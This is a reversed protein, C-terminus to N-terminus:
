IQKNIIIVCNTLFLILIYVVYDNNNILSLIYKYIFLYSAVYLNDAIRGGMYIYM